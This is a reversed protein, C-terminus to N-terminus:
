MKEVNEIVKSMGKVMAQQDCKDWWGDFRVKSNNEDEPSSTTIAIVPPRNKGYKKVIEELCAFGGMVPMFIDLLVVDFPQRGEIAESYQELAEKGNSAEVINLKGPFESNLWLKIFERNISVDEVLLIQLKSKSSTTTSSTAATTSIQIEKSEVRPPSTCTIDPTNEGSVMDWSKTLAIHDNDHLVELEINDQLPLSIFFTSGKTENNTANDKNSYGGYTGHMSEVLLCVSGLGTGEKTFYRDVLVNDVGISSSDCVEIRLQKMYKLFKVTVTNSNVTVTNNNMKQTHKQANSVLNVVCQQIKAWDSVCYIPLKTDLIYKIGVNPFLSNGYTKTMDECAKLLTTIKFRQQKYEPRKGSQSYMVTTYVGRLYDVAVRQQKLYIKTDKINKLNWMATAAFSITTLPTGINHAVTAM